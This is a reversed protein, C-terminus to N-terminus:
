SLIGNAVLAARINVVLAHLASMNAASDLGYSGTGYAALAGGSAYATQATKSNCGFAGTITGTGDVLLNNDGPDSDGGVHLGGNIALKAAAGATNIGVCGTHGIRMREALSGATDMTSFRWSMPVIGTSVTSTVSGSLQGGRVNTTGDHGWLDFVFVTDGSAAASPSALTGRARYNSYFMGHWSTDSFIRAVHAPYAGDVGHNTITGYAWIDGCSFGGGPGRRVIMNATNSSVAGHVNGTVDTIHSQINANAPEYATAATFAASGLTGGGTPVTLTAGAAPWALVGAGGQNTLSTTLTLSQGATIALGHVGSLLAAHDAIGGKVAKQTPIYLDSNAAFTKDTDITTITGPTGANNVLSLEQTALSLPSGGAKITVDDAHLAHIKAIETDAVLSYGTVKEVLGSLDQNDSGSAHAKSVADDVDSKLPGDALGTADNVHYPIRGDTLGSLKVTVFAPSDDTNLDQDYSGGGGGFADTFEAIFDLSSQREWLETAAVYRVFDGDLIGQPFDEQPWFAPSGAPIAGAVRESDKDTHRPM